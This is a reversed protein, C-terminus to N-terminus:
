DAYDTKSENLKLKQNRMWVKIDCLVKTKTEDINAIPLCIQYDVIFIAMLEM